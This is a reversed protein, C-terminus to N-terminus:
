NGQFQVDHADHETCTSVFFVPVIIGHHELEKLAEIGGMRPMNIDLFILDPYAMLHEKNLLHNVLQDGSYLSLVSCNVGARDLAEVMLDHDDQDDDVLFIKLKSYLMCFPFITICQNKYNGRVLAPILSNITCM